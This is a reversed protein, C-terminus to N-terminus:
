GHPSPLEDTKGAAYRNRPRKRRVRLLARAHPTDTDKPGCGLVIRYSLRALPM